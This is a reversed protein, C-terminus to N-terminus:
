AVGSTSRESSSELFRRLEREVQAAVNEAPEDANVIRFRQPSKGALELFGARVRLHFAIKEQDLRAEKHGHTDATNREQARALGTEVPLDFLLTLGPHPGTGHLSTLADLASSPLGRGFGQYALTSDEFRDCLVIRHNELAPRIVEELHQARAAHIMLLEALPSMADHAPDLLVSRLADGITTGGPERTVTVELGRSRLTDAALRIQTSKGSGEVGEFTIFRNMGRARWCRQREQM